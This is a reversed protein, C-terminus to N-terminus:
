LFPNVFGLKILCRKFHHVVYAKSKYFEGCSGCCFHKFDSHMLQHSRVESATYFCKPCDSCVYPKVGEHRILHNKLSGSYSFKKECIHCTFWTGENHSKLLHAKLQDCWTFCVSCHRFSFPKAVTHTRVHSKLHSSSKFMKGCFRCDHPRRNSHVHHKHTETPHQVPLLQCWVTFVQITQRGHPSGHSCTSTWVPSIGQWVWYM